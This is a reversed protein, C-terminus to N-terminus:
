YRTRLHVIKWPRSKLFAEWYWWYIRWYKNRCFFNCFLGTLIVNQCKFKKKCKQTWGKRHTRAKTCGNWLITNYYRFLRFRAHWVTLITKKQQLINPYSAHSCFSNSVWLYTGVKHRKLVLCCTKMNSLIGFYLWIKMKSWGQVGETNNSWSSCKSRKDM